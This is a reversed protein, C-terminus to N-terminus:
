TAPCEKTLTNKAECVMKSSMRLRTQAQIAAVSSSSQNLGHRVRVPARLDPMARNAKNHTMQMRNGTIEIVSSRLALGASGSVTFDCNAITVGKRSVLPKHISTYSGFADANQWSISDCSSKPGGECVNREKKRVRRGGGVASWNAYGMRKCRKKPEILASRQRDIEGTSGRRLFM